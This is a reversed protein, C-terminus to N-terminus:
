LWEIDIEKELKKFEPDGTVLVCYARDSGSATRVVLAAAFCDAYSIGGKAKFRAAIKTTQWDVDVITVGLNLLIEIARDAEKPNARAAINYWIEGANVTSILIKINRDHADALIEIVKQAAPEGQLYAMVPWSDLVIFERM